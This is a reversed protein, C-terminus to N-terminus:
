RDFKLHWRIAAQYKYVSFIEIYETTWKPMKLYEGLKTFIISGSSPLESFHKMNTTVFFSAQLLLCGKFIFILLLHILSSMVISLFNFEDACSLPPKMIWPCEPQTMVSSVSSVVGDRSSLNLVGPITRIYGVFTYFISLLHCHSLM